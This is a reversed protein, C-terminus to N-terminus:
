PKSSAGGHDGAGNPKNFRGSDDWTQLTQWYDNYFLEDMESASTIDTMSSQSLTDIDQPVAGLLVNGSDTLWTVSLDARLMYFGDQHNLERASRFSDSVLATRSPQVLSFKTVGDLSAGRYQYNGVLLGRGTHWEDLNAEYTHPGHHSPCYFLEPTELIGSEHLVGLSDWHTSNPGSGIDFRLAISNGMNTNISVTSTPPVIDELELSGAMVSPPLQDRNADAYIVVGIGIQRLNSGCVVRQAAARVSGLAPVMIAVLLSMVGLSVLVDIM